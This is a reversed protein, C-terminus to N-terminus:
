SGSGSKQNASRFKSSTDHSSRFKQEAVRLFSVQVEDWTEETKESLSKARFLSPLLTNSVPKTTGGAGNDVEM